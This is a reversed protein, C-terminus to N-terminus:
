TTMSSATAQAHRGLYHVLTKQRPTFAHTRDDNDDDGGGHKDNGRADSDHDHADDDGDDDDHNDNDYEDEEKEEHENYDDHDDDERVVVFCGRRCRCSRSGISGVVPTTSTSTSM